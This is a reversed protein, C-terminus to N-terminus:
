LGPVFAGAHQLVQFTGMRAWARLEDLPVARRFREHVRHLGHHAPDRRTSYDLRSYETDVYEPDPGEM